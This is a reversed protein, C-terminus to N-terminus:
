GLLLFCTTSKPYFGAVQLLQAKWQETTTVTGEPQTTKGLLSPKKSQKKLLSIFDL